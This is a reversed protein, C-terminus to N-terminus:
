TAIDLSRGEALAPDLWGPHLRGLPKATMRLRFMSSSPHRNHDVCVPEVVEVSPRRLPEGPVRVAEGAIGGLRLVQGLPTHGPM